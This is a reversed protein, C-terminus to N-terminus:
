TLSKYKSNFVKKYQLSLSGFNILLGVPLNYAVTYNKAQALHIDELNIMAKLEIVINDEVIFDARRSGVEINNYYITQEKERVFELEAQQLEIALCRQYIVEQFGNGLTNHVKMACGIIKYTIEDLQKM